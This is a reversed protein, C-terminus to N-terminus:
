YKKVTIKTKDNQREGALGHSSLKTLEVHPNANIVPNSLCSCNVGM